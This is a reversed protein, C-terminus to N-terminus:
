KTSNVEIEVSLKGDEITKDAVNLKTIRPYSPTTNFPLLGGYMGVPTGDFGLYLAKAEDTLDNYYNSGKFITKEAYKNGSGSTMNKFVTYQSSGLNVGVCNRIEVSNPFYYYGDGTKWESVIVCNYMNSYEILDARNRSYLYMVCNVFNVRADTNSQRIEDIYSNVCQLNSVGTNRFNYIKCNAFLANRITGGMTLSSFYNKSLLVDNLTGTFTIAANFHVGEINLRTTTSSPINITLSTSTTQGIITKVTEDIGTGRLTVAKTIDTSQFIGGSLNIVDGDVAAAMASQFAYTGYFSKVNGDHSLTAVLSNQAFSVTAIM